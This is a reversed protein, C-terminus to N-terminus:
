GGSQGPKWWRDPPDAPRPHESQPPLPSGDANVADVREAGSNELIRCAQEVQRRDGVHVAVVTDREAALSPDDFHHHPMQRATKRPRLAGGAVAGAVSGGVTFPIIGIMMRWFVSVTGDGGLAWALAVLAGILAGALAGIIAGTIAGKAQEPTVFALPTTFGETVEDQMEAKLESVQDPDEGDEPRLLRVNSQDVGASALNRVADQALRRDPFAAVVNYKATLPM